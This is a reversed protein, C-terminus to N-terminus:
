VQIRVRRAKVCKAAKAAAATFEESEVQSSVPRREAHVGGNWYQTTLLLYYASTTLLLCYATLLLYRGPHVGDNWYQTTLLLYYTTLLLHGIEAVGSELVKELGGM